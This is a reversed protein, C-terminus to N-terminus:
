IQLTRMFSMSDQLDKILEVLEVNEMDRVAQSSEQSFVMNEMALDERICIKNSGIKVREIIQYNMDDSPFHVRLSTSM